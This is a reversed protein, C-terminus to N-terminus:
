TFTDTLHQGNNLAQVAANTNDVTYTWHGDATMTYSGYHGDSAAATTVAQFTNPTNDVDTDTLLGTVSPTGATGNSVGGAETVSGTSTGSIVAADNSGNITVTVTESTGD